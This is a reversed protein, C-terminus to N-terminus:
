SGEIVQAIRASSPRGLYGAAPAVSIRVVGHQLWVGPKAAKTLTVRTVHAAAAKGAPRSSVGVIADMALLAADAILAASKADAEPADFAVLHRTARSCRSSALIM